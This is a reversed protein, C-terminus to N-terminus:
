MVKKLLVGKRYFCEKVKSKELLFNTTKLEESTIHAVKYEFFDKVHIPSKASILERRFTFWKNDIDCEYFSDIETYHDKIIFDNILMNRDGLLLGTYRDEEIRYIKSVMEGIEIFLLKINGLKIVENNKLIYNMEIKVPKAIRSKLNSTKIKWGKKAKDNALTGALSKKVEGKSQFLEMGSFYTSAIGTLSINLKIKYDEGSRSYTYKKKVVNVSSDTWPTKLIKNPKDWLILSRRNEIDDFIGQAYSIDNTPDIWMERENMGPKPAVYVIVHNFMKLTPLTKPMKSSQDGRHVLAFYANYGM